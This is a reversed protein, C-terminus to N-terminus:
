PYHRTGLSLRRNSYPARLTATAIDIPEIYGRGTAIVTVYATKGDPAIVVGNFEDAAVGFRMPAGPSNTALDIPIVVNVCGNCNDAVYATHGDPTIAIASPATNPPLLILKGAANSTLDIPVVASRRGAFVAQYAVYATKGDPTIAIARPITGAPFTIPTDRVNTALDIPTVNGIAASIKFSGIFGSVVYATKGDPTIAIATPQTGAPFFIPAGVTNTALDIPTVSQRTTM